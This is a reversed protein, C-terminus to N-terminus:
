ITIKIIKIDYLMLLKIYLFLAGFEGHSDLVKM